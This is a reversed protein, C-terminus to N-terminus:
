TTLNPQNFYGYSPGYVCFMCEFLAQQWLGLLQGRISTSIRGSGVVLVHDFSMFVTVFCLALYYM